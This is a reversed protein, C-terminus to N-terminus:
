GSPGAGAVACVAQARELDINPMPELYAERFPAVPRGAPRAFYADIDARTFPTTTICPTARGNGVSKVLGQECLAVLPRNVTWRSVPKVLAKMIADPAIGAPGSERIMLELESSMVLDHIVWGNSKYSFNRKKDRFLM